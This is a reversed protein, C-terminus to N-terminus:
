NLKSKCIKADTAWPMLQELLTEDNKWDMEPMTNLIYCFYKYVDLGNAKASEVLSYIAASAEAGRPTDAFLWNKRGVTFPRIANEALNNSLSCRGDKLYNELNARQKIAYSIATGVKFRPMVKVSNAWSWFAELVPKELELRKIYREEPTLGALKREIEFLRDCYQLGIEAVTASSDKAKSTIAEYFKRRVHAWCSCRVVNKMNNYGAYGDTHLYGKFGKLFNKACAGARSPHYDYIVAPKEANKGTAYLWMYSKSQPTRGEEKLVQVPTEDCHLVENKLLQQRMHEVLPAFYEENCRIVWNAMTTRSLDVGLDHWFKEQRYLPMASVYKQYIINAVSSASALSHNLVARPAVTGIIYPRDTHKCKPCEYTFSVYKIVQLKAPIYEICERVVRKGMIKLPTGCQECVAEAETLELLIEKVPLNESVVRKSKPRRVAYRKRDKQVPEEEVKDSTAEIELENFLNIQGDDEQLLRTKESKSGYMERRLYNVAETLTQIYNDKDAIVAEQKKVTEQLEKVTTDFRKITDNLQGIVQLLSTINADNELM